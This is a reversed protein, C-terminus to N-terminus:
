ENGNEGDEGGERSCGASAIPASLRFPERQASGMKPPTAGKPAAPFGGGGKGPGGVTPPQMMQITSGM